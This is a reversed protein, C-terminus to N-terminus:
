RAKMWFFFLSPTTVSSFNRLGCRERFEVGRPFGDGLLPKRSVVPLEDFGVPFGYRLSFEAGGV